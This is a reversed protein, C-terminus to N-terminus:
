KEYFIKNTKGTYKAYMIEKYEALRRLSMESMLVTNSKIDWFGSISFIMLKQREEKNMKKFIPAFLEEEKKNRHYVKQSYRYSEINMNPANRKCEHSAWNFIGSPVEDGCYTCIGTADKFQNNMKSINLNGM